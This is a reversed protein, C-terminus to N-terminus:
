LFYNLALIKVRLICMWAVSKNSVLTYAFDATRFDSVERKGKQENKRWSLHVSFQSFRVFEDTFQSWKVREHFLKFTPCFARTFASLAAFMHKLEEKNCYLQLRIPGQIHASPHYKIYTCDKSIDFGLLKFKIFNRSGNWTFVLTKSIVKGGNCSSPSRKRQMFDVHYSIKKGKVVVIGRTKIENWLDFTVQFHLKNKEKLM